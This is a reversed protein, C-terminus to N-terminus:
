FSSIVIKLLIYKSCLGKLCLPIYLKGIKFKIEKNRKHFNQCFKIHLKRNFYDCLVKKKIKLHELTIYTCLFHQLVNMFSKLMELIINKNTNM